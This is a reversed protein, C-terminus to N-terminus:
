VRFTDARWSTIRRKIADSGLKEDLAATVLAPLEGDSAFRLAVLQSASLDGIRSRLPESLLSALRLREELRIVRDQVKLAYLRVKLAMLIQAAMFLVLFAHPVAPRTVLLVVAYVFCVSLAGFLWVHYPPDSRKHNAYTQPMPESM